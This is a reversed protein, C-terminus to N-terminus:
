QKRTLAGGNPCTCPPPERPFPQISANAHVCSPSKIQKSQLNIGAELGPISRGSHLVNKSQQAARM